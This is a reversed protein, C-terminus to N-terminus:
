RQQVTVSRVPLSEQLPFYTADHWNPLPLPTISSDQVRFHDTVEARSGVMYVYVAGGVRAQILYHEIGGPHEPEGYGANETRYSSSIEISGAPSYTDRVHNYVLATLLPETFIFASGRLPEPYYGEWTKAKEILNKVAEGLGYLLMADELLPRVNEIFQVIYLPWGQAMPGVEYPRAELRDVRYERPIVAAADEVAAALDAQFGLRVKEYAPSWGLEYRRGGYHTPESESEFKIPNPLAIIVAASDALDQRRAEDWCSDGAIADV